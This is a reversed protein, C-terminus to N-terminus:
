ILSRSVYISYNFQVSSMTLATTGHLTINVCICCYTTCRWDTTIRYFKDDSCMYVQVAHTSTHSNYYLTQYQYSDMTMQHHGRTDSWWHATQLCMWKLAPATDQIAEPKFLMEASMKNCREFIIVIHTCTHLNDCYLETCYFCRYQACHDVTLDFKLHPCFRDINLPIWHTPTGSLSPYNIGFQILPFILVRWPQCCCRVLSTINATAAAYCDATAAPPLTYLGLAWM